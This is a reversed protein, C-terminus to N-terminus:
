VLHIKAMYRAGPLAQKGSVVVVPDGRKLLGTQLISRNAQRIMEDTNSSRRMPLPIVGRLLTLRTRIAKSPAMTIIPCAPKLLSVLLATKGSLTFVVIAKARLGEAAKLAAGTIAHVPSPDRRGPPPSLGASFAKIHREAELLISSMTRVAQVPYKGVATEGSLMVADTGDFVANAVDSVEARSPRLKEMMTELMETATIVPVEARHAEEILRKQVAPVKEVGMEIGLDGRAVMIGDAAALVSRIQRVASPKEIKAIVPIEKHRRLWSKLALVDSENRVFSLAIYDVQQGAAVALDALDKKTLSPLTAPAHPLNIGKNERLLGGRLVRCRVGTKELSLVRLQLLGNDLLVSDGTKVMRPFKLCPTTIVAGGGPAPGPRIWVAAGKKLLLSGGGRLRGTRVRPGQLDVLIGVTKKLSGSVKRILLIWERLRAPTTHSANIRLVDAGALILAKLTSARECAPGVTAVIKTTRVRGNYVQKVPRLYTYISM